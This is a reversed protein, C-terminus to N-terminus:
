GPGPERALGPSCLGADQAQGAASLGEDLMVARLVPASPRPPADAYSDLIARMIRPSAMAIPPEGFRERWLRDIERFEELRRQKM